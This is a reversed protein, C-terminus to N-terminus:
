GRADHAEGANAEVAVPAALPPEKVAVNEGPLPGPHPAGKTADGDGVAASRMGSVQPPAHAALYAELASITRDLFGITAHLDGDLAADLQNKRGEYESAEHQLAHGWHRTRAAKEHCHELRRQARELAKREEMCAPTGGGPLPTARCRHLDKKAQLVAEESKRVESRWYNPQWDEIWELSRRSELDVAVLAARAEQRFNVLSTRFRRLADLSLVRAQSM